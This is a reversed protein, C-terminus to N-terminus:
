SPSSDPRQIMTEPSRVSMGLTLPTVALSSTIIEETTCPDRAGNHATNGAPMM